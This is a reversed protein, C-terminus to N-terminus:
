VLGGEEMLTPSPLLVFEIAFKKCGNGSGAASVFHCSVYGCFCCSPVAANCLCPIECSRCVSPLLAGISFLFCIPKHGQYYASALHCSRYFCYTLNVWQPLSGDPKSDAGTRYQLDAM